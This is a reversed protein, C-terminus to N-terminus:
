EGIYNPHSEPFLGKANPMVAVPMGSAEALAQM